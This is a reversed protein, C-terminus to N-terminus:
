HVNLIRMFTDIIIDHLKQTHIQGHKQATCLTVAWIPEALASYTSGISFKM